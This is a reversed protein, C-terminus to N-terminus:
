LVFVLSSSTTDLSSRSALVSSFLGSSTSSAWVSSGYEPTTTLDVVYEPTTTLDVVVRKMKSSLLNIGEGQKRIKNSEEEKPSFVFQM